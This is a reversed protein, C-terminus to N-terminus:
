CVVRLSQPFIEIHLQEDQYVEGDIVYHPDTENIITVKRAHHHQVTNGSSINLMGSLALEFLSSVVGLENEEPALWTIDLLGDAHDPNGKGLALLTTIPAANAVVLSGTEISFPEQDDLSLTVHITKGKQIAQWLGKLYAFQGYEDKEQRDAAEIMKQEFGLGVLLLVLRGNCQATDIKKSDGKLIYSCATEVPSLKSQIGMLVHCLANTTGAPIIGLRIDTNVVQAAVESVTGDGGCAIITDPNQRVGEKALSSISEHESSEKITMLYQVSLESCVEQKYEGWKGGGSVPNAIIWATPLRFLKESEIFQELKKRQRTNLNVTRRIKKLDQLTQEVSSGKRNSILYAAIVLASRGRGLACNVLVPGNLRQQNKIWIIAQQLDEASPVAHDLIPINLYAMKTDLLSWRLSEFEATVDLIAQIEKQAIVSLDSATLKDGIYLGDSIRQISPVGDNKRAILNYIHTVILFPIFLVKIYFPIKGRADKRFIKSQNSFYAWSVVLFPISIWAFILRGLNSPSLLLCIIGALGCFLYVIGMYM